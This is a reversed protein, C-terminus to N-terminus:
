NLVVSPDNKVLEAFDLEVQEIESAKPMDPTKKNRKRHERFMGDIEAMSMKKLANPDVGFDLLTARYASFPTM